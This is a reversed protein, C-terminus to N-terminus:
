WAPSWTSCRSACRQRVRVVLLARREQREAVVAAAIAAIRRMRAQVREATLAAQKLPRAHELEWVDDLVLLSRAPLADKVAEVGEQVSGPLRAEPRLLRLAVSLRDMCFEADGQGEAQGIHM